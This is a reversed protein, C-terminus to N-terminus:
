EAAVKHREAVLASCEAMTRSARAIPNTLYFDDIAPAFPASGLGGGRGALATVDAVAAPEVVDVAAFRPQEAYLKARLQTLSDWPLKVGLLDSLARWVAWDERAEGPAFNAREALQVRGETNVYTGSKETYTAGRCSSTPAIRAAIATAASM